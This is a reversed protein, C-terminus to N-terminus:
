GWVGFTYVHNNEQSWTIFFLQILQVVGMKKEKGKWHKITTNNTNRRNNVKVTTLLYKSTIKVKCTRRVGGLTCFSILARIKEGGSRGM